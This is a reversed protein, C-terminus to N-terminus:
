FTDKKCEFIHKDGFIRLAQEDKSLEVNAETDGVRITRQSVFTYPEDRWTAFPTNPYAYGYDNKLTVRGTETFTVTANKDCKWVGELQARTPAGPITATPATKQPEEVISTAPKGVVSAPLTFVGFMTVSGDANRPLSKAFDFALWGMGWLAVGMVGMLSAMGPAGIGQNKNITVPGNGDTNGDGIRVTGNNDRGITRHDYTNGSRTRVNGSNANATSTMVPALVTGGHHVRDVTSTAQPGLGQYAPSHSHHPPMNMHMAVGSPAPPQHALALASGMSSTTSTKGLKELLIEVVHGVGRDLKVHALALPLGPISRTGIAIPLVSAGAGDLASRRRAINRELITWQRKGYHRSALVVMFRAREAYIEVLRADLRTGWLSAQEHRDYFVRVGAERLGNALADAIAIDERAYSIAIDYEFAPGVTGCPTTARTAGVGQNRPM